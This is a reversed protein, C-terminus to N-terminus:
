FMNYIGLTNMTEYEKLIVDYMSIGLVNCLAASYFMSSGLEKEIVERCKECLTGKIHTDMFNRLDQLSTDEPISQKKAEIQICGCSTAAKVVARNVRFQSEQLKTLIDLVSKQTALLESVSDQFHDCLLDKM